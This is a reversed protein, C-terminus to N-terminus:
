LPEFDLGFGRYSEVFVRDRGQARGMPKATLSLPRLLDIRWLAFRGNM